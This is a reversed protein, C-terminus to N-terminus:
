YNIERYYVRFRQSSSLKEVFSLVALNINDRFNGKNPPAVTCSTYAVYALLNILLHM